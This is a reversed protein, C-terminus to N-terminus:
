SQQGLPTFHLSAVRTTLTLQGRREFLATPESSPKRSAEWVAHSDYQTNLLMRTVGRRLDDPTAEARFLGYIAAPFEREFSPWARQSLDVFEPVDTTKVDFWRHTYIGTTKPLDTPAPRVTAALRSRDLRAVAPHYRIAQVAQERGAANGNWRLLVALNQSSWGILPTFYGIADGGAARVAAAGAGRLHEAFAKQTSAGAGPLVEVFIYDYIDGAAAASAAHPQADARAISSSAAAALGASGILIQRRDLL